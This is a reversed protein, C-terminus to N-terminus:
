DEDEDDELEINFSEAIDEVSCSYFDEEVDDINMGDTLDDIISLVEKTEMTSRSILDELTNMAQERFFFSSLSKNWYIDNITVAAVM